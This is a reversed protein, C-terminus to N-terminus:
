GRNFPRKLGIHESIDIEYPACPMGQSISLCQSDSLLTAFRDLYV